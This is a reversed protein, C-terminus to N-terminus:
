PQMQELFEIRLYDFVINQYKYIINRIGAKHNDLVIKSLYEEIYANRLKIWYMYRHMYVCFVTLTGEYMGHARAYVIARNKFDNLKELVLADSFTDISEFIKILKNYLLGESKEISFVFCKYTKEKFNTFKM